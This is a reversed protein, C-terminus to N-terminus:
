PFRSTIALAAADRHANTMELSDNPGYTYNALLAAWEADIEELIVPVNEIGVQTDDHFRPGVWDPVVSGGTCLTDAIAKIPLYLQDRVTNRWDVLRGTTLPTQASIKTALRVMDQKLTVMRTQAEGVDRWRDAATSNWQTM